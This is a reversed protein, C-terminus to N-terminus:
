KKCEGMWSSPTKRCYVFGGGLKTKHLWTGLAIRSLIGYNAIEAQLEGGSDRFIATITVWHWSELDALKGNSLNLFAVPSDGNLGDSLFRVVADVSPRKARRTPFDLRVAHFPLNHEAAYRDIGDALQWTRHVGMLGPTVYHWVQHMMDIFAPLNLAHIGPLYQQMAYDLLNTATCPGCGAQQQFSGRYLNQNCGSVTPERGEEDPHRLAEPHHIGAIRVSGLAVEGDKNM